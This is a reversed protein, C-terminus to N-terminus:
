DAGTWEPLQGGFERVAQANFDDRERINTRVFDVAEEATLIQIGFRKRLADRNGLIGGPQTKSGGNNTVLIAAYHIADAVIRVDNRQNEDQAGRPFLLAEIGQFRASDPREPDTTTFIQENAKRSRPPNGGALAEDRATGAMNILIVRDACWKELQNVAPLKQRANILNTDIHLIPIYLMRRRINM